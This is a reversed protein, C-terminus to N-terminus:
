RRRARWTVVAASIAFLGALLGFGPTSESQKETKEPTLTPTAKSGEEGLKEAKLKEAEYKIKVLAAKMPAWGYWHSYDPNMHFAGQFTRMRYELFMLYLEEEIPTKVEYFQLLDPAYKWGEPKELIGLDYLEKVTRIAEAFVRDAERIMKDGAELQERAFNESHCQSCIEIMKEREAQWEEKSLRAVKGAKVVEFRETPNGNEDLVGLAQLITVRDKWWEEDDEPVRLALFGWATMVSHNGNAMHCTQCKPARGTDGEISYIVGHKSTSWMEYQPHDFGMHCPLCAEPKRAEEKSFKHRTHCSDCAASGYRYAEDKDQIVGIKHCGSCGKFGELDKLPTPIHQIAPMAKMAIWAYYHKGSAYQEYQKPHCAKCTDPTPMKANQWDDSSRHGVGHCAECGIHKSMNGSLWQDVIGPTVQKHCDICESASALSTLAALLFVLLVARRM